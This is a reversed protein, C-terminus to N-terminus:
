RPSAGRGGPRRPLPKGGHYQWFAEACRLIEARMSATFQVSFCREPPLALVERMAAVAGTRLGVGQAPPQPCRACRLEGTALDLRVAGSGPPQECAACYALGPRLGATKLLRLLFVGEMSATRGGADLAELALRLLGYHEAEGEGVGLTADLIRLLRSATRMAAYDRWLRQYVRTTECKRMTGLDAGGRQHWELHSASAPELGVGARSKAGRAGKAVLRVKGRGRTLFTVILSTNAYPRAGLVIAEDSLIALRVSGRCM